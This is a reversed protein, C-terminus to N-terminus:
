CSRDSGSSRDRFKLNSVVRLGPGANQEILVRHIQARAGELVLMGGGIGADPRSIGNRLIADSLSLETLPGEAYIQPGRNHVFLARAIGVRAGGGVYLGGSEESSAEDLTDAFILDTISATAANSISLGTGHSRDISVGALDLRAGQTVRVQLRYGPEQRDRLAIERLDISSGPHEAMVAYRDWEVVIRSLAIQGTQSAYIAEDGRGRIVVGRGTVSGKNQAVVGWGRPGTAELVLEALHAPGSDALVATDASVVRLNQLAVDRGGAHITAGCCDLIQEIVTDRACAGFLMVGEPIEIRGAFTEKALAIVTGPRAAALAAPLNSFPATLSGDGGPSASPKAYLVPRGLPLDAVPPFDGAPCPTGVRTCAPEGFFQAEDVACSVRPPVLPPECTTIALSSTPVASWGTPCPLFSPLEPAMPPVVPRALVEADAPLDPAAPAPCPLTCAVAEQERSM